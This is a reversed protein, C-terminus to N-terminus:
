DVHITIVLIKALFQFDHVVESCVSLWRSHGLIESIWFENWWEIHWNTPNSGYCMAVMSALSMMKSSTMVKCSCITQCQLVVDCWLMCLKRNAVQPTKIVPWATFYISESVTYWRNAFAHFDKITESYSLPHALMKNLWHQLKVSSQVFCSAATMIKGAIPPHMKWLFCSFVKNVLMLEVMKMYIGAPCLLHHYVEVPFCGLNCWPNSMSIATVQWVTQVTLVKFGCDSWPHGIM